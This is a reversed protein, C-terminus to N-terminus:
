IEVYEKIVKIAQDAGYCIVCKYGQKEMDMGFLRQKPSISSSGDVKRRKMEIFLGPYKGTPYPLFIDYVGAKVGQRRLRAAERKNRKGGNPIAFMNDLKPQFLAWDFLAQQEDDEHHSPM